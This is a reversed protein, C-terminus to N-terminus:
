RDTLPSFTLRARGDSVQIDSIRFPARGNEWVWENFVDAASERLEIGHLAHGALRPAVLPWILRAPIALAGIEFRVFRGHIRGPVELQIRAGGVTRWGGQSFTAAVQVQNGDCFRVYPDVVNAFQKELHPWFEGHAAIWRNLRSEDIEVDIPRGANLAASIRDYLGVLERKDDELRAYDIAAPRYWAPRRLYGVIVFSLLASVTLISGSALWRWRGNRVLPRWIWAIM